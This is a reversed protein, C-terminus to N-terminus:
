HEGTFKKMFELRKKNHAEKGPPTKGVFWMHEPRNLIEDLLALVKRASEAKGHEEAHAAIEKIEPVFEMYFRHAVEYFGHWQVYDPGQMAAGHRARRGEHHWLFFWTWEIEEDFATKTRLGEALLLKMLAAGPKAFKGNYTHVVTDYQEYWNEIWDTQHCSRCVNKMDKRRELAPKVEGSQKSPREDVKISIPPRLTWSIRDGIDHTIPLDRTASMHCTACTPAANYDEGPIWKASDMNMKDLNARFAIGHKSEQYIEIQPHDPGMHCKGCTGPTRAQRLSFNHRQHCATCAGKSGDPNLRGIGTNPWSAADLKGDPLVKVPSGHCQWCGQVAAASEGRIAMQGYISGEVVEALVNDLSGLILGGTAHHSKDFERAEQEHCEACDKPSVITSILFDKHRVADPEGKEAKHCEYCGVNAGYHKSEGWQQYIGANKKMHCSVCTASEKSLVKFTKSPPGSPGEDRAAGKGVMAKGAGAATMDKDVAAAPASYSGYGILCLTALIGLLYGLGSRRDNKKVITLMM